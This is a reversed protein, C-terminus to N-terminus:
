GQKSHGDIVAKQELAAIREALDHLEVARWLQGLWGLAARVRVTASLKKDRAIDGLIDLMEAGGETLRRAVRGLAEDQAQRLGDVFVPDRLWKSVTWPRVDLEAAVTQKAVGQALLAIAARQKTSPQVKSTM